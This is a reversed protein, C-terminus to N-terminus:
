CAVRAYNELEQLLSTAKLWRRIPGEARIGIIKKKGVFQKKNKYKTVRTMHTVCTVRTVHTLPDCPDRPDCPYKHIQTNTFFLDM